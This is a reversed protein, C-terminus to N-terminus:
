VFTTSQGEMENGLISLQHAHVSLKIFVMLWYVYIDSAILASYDTLFLLFAKWVSKMLKISENSNIELQLLTYM